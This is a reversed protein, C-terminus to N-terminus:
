LFIFSDTFIKEKLDTYEEAILYRTKHEDYKSRQLLQM